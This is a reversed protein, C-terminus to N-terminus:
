YVPSGPNSDWRPRGPHGPGKELYRKSKFNPKPLNKEGVKLRRGGELKPCLLYNGSTKSVFHFQNQYM